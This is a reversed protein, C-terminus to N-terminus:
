IGMDQSVVKIAINRLANGFGVSDFPGTVVGFGDPKVKILEFVRTYVVIGSFKIEQLM